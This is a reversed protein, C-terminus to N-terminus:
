CRRPRPSGSATATSTVPVRCRDTPLCSRPLRPPRGGPSATKAAELLSWYRAVSDCGPLRVSLGVVAVADEDDLANM